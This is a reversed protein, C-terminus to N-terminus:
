DKEGLIVNANRIQVVGVSSMMPWCKTSVINLSILLEFIKIKKM